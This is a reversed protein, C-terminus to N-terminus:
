FGSKRTDWAKQPVHFTLMMEYPQPFFGFFTPPFPKETVTLVGEKVTVELIKDMDVPGPLWAKAYSVVKCGTDEPVLSVRANVTNLEIKQIPASLEYEETAEYSMMQGTGMLVAGTVALGMFGLICLSLLIKISAKM